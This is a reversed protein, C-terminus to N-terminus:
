KNLLTFNDCSYQRCGYNVMPLHSNDNYSMQSKIEPMWSNTIFNLAWMKDQPTTIVHNQDAALSQM